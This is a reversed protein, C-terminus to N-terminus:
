LTETCNIHSVEYEESARADLLLVPEQRALADALETTAVRPVDPFEARIWELTDSWREENALAVASVLVLLGGLWHRRM